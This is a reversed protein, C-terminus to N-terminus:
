DTTARDIGERAIVALRDIEEPTIVYPPMLYVVDGLPRLLAGHELAYRYVIRGRREQWPFPERTAKERVVEIAAIMGTQRVEAVRPHDNFPAIASAMHAALARNRAIM